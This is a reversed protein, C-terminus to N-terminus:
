VNVFLVNVLGSILVGSISPPVISPVAILLEAIPPDVGLVPANVATVTSLKVTLPFAIVDVFVFPFIESSGFPLPTTSTFVERITLTVSGVPACSAAVFAYTSATLTPNSKLSETLTAVM